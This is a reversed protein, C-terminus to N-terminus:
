PITALAILGLTLCDVWEVCAGYSDGSHGGLRRGIWLPVAVSPILGLCGQWSWGLGASVLALPLLLLLSPRLERPLGLWHHRHFAATGAERLYPFWQMAVLPAMRGWVAAWVLALAVLLPGPAQEALTLMAAARLLLVLLLAQVGSAGVRSDEMAELAREGAALGDGTDMVGDSHIGGTSWVGLALVLAVLATAPLVGAGLCWLLGQLGGLVLGIWPAFRAIREFRPRPWPWAPLVSYFIWAGALDQLWAPPAPPSSM